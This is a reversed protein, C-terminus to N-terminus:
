AQVRRIQEENLPGLQVLIVKRPQGRERLSHVLRGYAHGKVRDVKLHFRLRM